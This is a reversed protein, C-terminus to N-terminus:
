LNEYEESDIGLAKARKKLHRVVAARKGEGARGIAQRAKKWDIKDRIPFSGDALAEGKKAADKRKDTKWATTATAVVGSPRVRARIQEARCESVSASIPMGDTWNMDRVRDRLNMRADDLTRRSATIAATIAEDRANSSALITRELLDIRENMLALGSAIEGNVDVGSHDIMARQILPALGAAVLAVPQGGAVRARPIPFGPVNVASIAIMELSGNIPRWDGSVGSARLRRLTVEDVEPRVAGAVWIGHQDEGAAVDVVGSRTDDYHAVAEAVTATLPAHGGNLTIQGVNVIEGNDCEIAGTAFFAYGSRSKPPRIKGAMGIHTQNWTAAHGFVRGDSQVTLPTIESLAPDNFWQRPPKVPIAAATLAADELRVMGDWSPWDDDASYEGDAVDLPVDVDLTTMDSM